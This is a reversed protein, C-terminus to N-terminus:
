AWGGSLNVLDLALRGISLNVMAPELGGLYDAQCSEVVDGAGTPRTRAVTLAATSSDCLARLDDLRDQLDGESDGLLLLPVTFVYADRVKPMHIAGAMGPIQLNDGRLPAGAFVGDWSAVRAITTVSTGNITLDYAM